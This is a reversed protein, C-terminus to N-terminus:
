NGYFVRLPGRNHIRCPPPLVFGVVWPVWRTRKLDCAIGNALWKDVFDYADVHFGHVGRPM